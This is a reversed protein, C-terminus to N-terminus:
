AEKTVVGSYSTVIWQTGDCYLDCYNGIVGAINLYKTVVASGNLNIAEGTVPLLQIIQAATVAVKLGKGKSLSVAPLTLVQTGTDGTNNFISNLQAVTITYDATKTVVTAAKANITPLFQNATSAVLGTTTIGGANITGSVKLDRNLVKIGSQAM